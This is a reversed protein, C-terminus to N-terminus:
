KRKGLPKKIKYKADMTDLDSKVLTIATKEAVLDNSLLALAKDLEEKPTLASFREFNPYVEAVMASQTALLNDEDAKVKDTGKTSAVSSIALRSQSIFTGLERRLPQLENFNKSVLAQDLKQHWDSTMRDLTDNIGAVRYYLQKADHKEEFGCSSLLILSTFCLLCVIRLM